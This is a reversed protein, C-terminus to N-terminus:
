GAGEVKEFRVQLTADADGSKKIFKINELDEHGKVILVGESRLLHEGNAGTASPASGSATYYVEGGAIHQVVARLGGPYWTAKTFGISTSVSLQEQAQYKLGM